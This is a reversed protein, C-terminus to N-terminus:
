FDAHKYQVKTAAVRNFVTNVNMHKLTKAVDNRRETHCFSQHMVSKFANQWKLSMIMQSVHVQVCKVNIGPCVFKKWVLTATADGCTIPYLVDAEMDVEETLKVAYVSVPDFEHLWSEVFYRM